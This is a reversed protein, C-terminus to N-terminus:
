RLLEAAKNLKGSDMLCRGLKGAALMALNLHGERMFGDYAAQYHHTASARDRSKALCAALLLHVHLAAECAQESHRKFFSHLRHLHALAEKTRGVHALATALLYKANNLALEDATNSSLMEGVISTLAEGIGVARDAQGVVVLSDVLFRGVSLLPDTSIDLGQKHARHMHDLVKAALKLAEQQRDPSGLAFLCKSLSLGSDITQDHVHGVLAVEGDYVLRWYRLSMKFQQRSDFLSAMARLGILCTPNVAASPNATFGSMVADHLGLMREHQGAKDLAVVFSSLSTLSADHSSGTLPHQQVAKWSLEYADAAEAYKKAQFLIQGLKGHVQGARAFFEPVKGQHALIDRRLRLCAGSAPLVATLKAWQRGTHARPSTAATLVSELRTSHLM